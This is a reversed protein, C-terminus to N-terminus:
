QLHGKHTATQVSKEKDCSDSSTRTATSCFVSVMSGTAAWVRGTTFTAASSHPPGFYPVMNTNEQDKQVTYHLKALAQETVQTSCNLPSM